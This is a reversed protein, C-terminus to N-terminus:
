GSQSSTKLPLVLRWSAPSEPDNTREQRIFGAGEYLRLSRENYEFIKGATLLHWDLEIARTILLRLVRRGVRTLSLPRLYRADSPAAARDSGICSSANSAAAM